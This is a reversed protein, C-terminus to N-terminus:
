GENETGRSQQRQAWNALHTPQRGLLWRLVNGNGVLGNAAYHHFMAELMKRTTEDIGSGKVSARWEDISLQRFDVQRGLARGLIAATRSQTLPEPGALEYTAGVHGSRTLVTAAARGVDDLDVLSIPTEAPYPLALEGGAIGSWYALLNQMYAAPQLITFPLGSEIVLEEVRMKQWHHPMAEIQPHLVSHYVWHRINSEQAVALAGRAIQLEGEHMNPCIFYVSEVGDLADKWRESDELPGSFTDAVPLGIGDEKRRVWARVSRNRRALERLAARGTKGAAGTVLIM